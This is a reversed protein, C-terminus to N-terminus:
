QSTRESNRLVNTMNGGVVTQLIKWSSLEICCFTSKVMWSVSPDAPVWAMAVKIQVRLIFVRVKNNQQNATKNAPKIQLRTPQSSKCDQQSAQNATKNAPKIQLRTLQSPKCDQQSAQNAPYVTPQGNIQLRTPQLKTQLRTSVPKIKSATCQTDHTHSQRFTSYAISPVTSCTGKAM